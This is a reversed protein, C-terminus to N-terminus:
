DGENEKKEPPICGKAKSLLQAAHYGPNQPTSNISMQCYKGCRCDDNPEPCLALGWAHGRSKRKKITWGLGELEKIAAEVEKKPHKPRSL